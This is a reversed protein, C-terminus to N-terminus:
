LETHSTLARDVLQESIRLNDLFLGWVSQWQYIIYM